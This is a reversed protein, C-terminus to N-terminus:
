IGAEAGYFQTDERFGGQGDDIAQYDEVLEISRLYKVMKFGLQTEVRLRCPAGHPIPLPEGNM